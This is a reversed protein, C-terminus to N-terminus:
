YLAYFVVGYFANSDGTIIHLVDGEEVARAMGPEIMTVDVAGSAAPVAATTNLAVWVTKGPTVDFVALCRKDKFPYLDPSNGADPVTVTVEASAVLAGAFKDDSFPLSFDNLVRETSQKQFPKM